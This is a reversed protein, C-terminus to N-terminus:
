HSHGLETSIKRSSNIVENILLNTREGHLIQSSLGTVNIAGAVDRHFDIIPAAISGLSPILESDQIAYGQQRTKMLEERFLAPDIVTRTTYSIFEIRAILRDWNEIPQFALLAKGMATCYAPSRHGIPTSFVVKEPIEAIAVTVVEVGDLVSLTVVENISKSLEFMTPLAVERVAIGQRAPLSLTLMRVGQKYRKTDEDRVLYGMKELTYLFRFVTAQDYGTIEAIDSAKLLPRKVTFTSLIQLGKVLSSVIYNEKIDEDMINGVKNITDAAKM